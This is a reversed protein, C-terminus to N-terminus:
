IKEEKRNQQSFNCVCAQAGCSVGYNSNICVVAIIISCCTHCNKWAFVKFGMVFKLPLQQNACLFYSLPFTHILYLCFWIWNNMRCKSFPFVFIFSSLLFFSFQKTMVDCVLHTHTTYRIKYSTSQDITKWNRITVFVKILAKTFKIIM